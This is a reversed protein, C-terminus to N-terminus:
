TIQGVEPLTESLLLGRADRADVGLRANKLLNEM